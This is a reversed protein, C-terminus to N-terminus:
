KILRMETVIQLEKTESFFIGLHHQIWSILGSNVLFTSVVSYAKVDTSYQLDKGPPKEKKNIM